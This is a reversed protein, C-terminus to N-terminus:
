WECPKYINTNPIHEPLQSEKLIENTIRGYFTVYDRLPKSPKRKKSPSVWGINKNLKERTIRIGETLDTDDSIVVAAEYFEKWGDYLLHTALNVDSGKEENKIVWIRQETADIDQEDVQLRAIPYKKKHTVFFGKIIEIKNGQFKKLASWYTKQRFPRQSDGQAKVLATFYKVKIINNKPFLNKSFEYLDLWKYPTNRVTYFLHFGDIYVYTNM